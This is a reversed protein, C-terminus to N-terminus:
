AVLSVKGDDERDDTDGDHILLYPKEPEPDGEDQDSAWQMRHDKCYHLEKGFASEWWSGDADNFVERMTDISAYAAYEDDKNFDADCDPFDCVITYFTVAKFSM